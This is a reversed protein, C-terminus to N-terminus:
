VQKPLYDDSWVLMVNFSVSIRPEKSLNPHVFHNVFAPWLLLMGPEPSLTYEAEIYPDDKIAHMNVSGRPDYLSICGPRVDQRSNLPEPTTPCQVYYTGSLYARPHNHYDHYDGFRNVNAWGHVNWRITYRVGIGAFYDRVTVDICEKLWACAPEALGLFNDDRYNTTLSADDAELRDIVGLLAENASTHNPITRRMLITPWLAVMDDPLTQEKSKDRPKSM